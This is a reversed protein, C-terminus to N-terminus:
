RSIIIRVPSKKLTRIDKIIWLGYNNLVTDQAFSFSPMASIYLGILIIIHMQFTIKVTM